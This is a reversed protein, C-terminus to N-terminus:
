PKPEEEIRKATRKWSSMDVLKQLREIELNLDIFTNEFKKELEDEVLRLREIEADKERIALSDAVALKKARGLREALTANEEKAQALQNTLETIREAQGKITTNKCHLVFDKESM